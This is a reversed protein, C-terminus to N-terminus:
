VPLPPAPPALRCLEDVLVSSSLGLRAVALAPSMMALQELSLGALREPRHQQALAMLRQARELRFLRLEETEGGLPSSELLKLEDHNMTDGGPTENWGSAWGGRTQRIEDDLEVDDAAKHGQPHSHGGDHSSKAIGSSRAQQEYRTNPDDRLESLVRPANAKGPPCITVRVRQGHLTM